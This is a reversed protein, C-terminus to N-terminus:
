TKRLHRWSWWATISVLMWSLFAAAFALPLNPSALYFVFAFAMLGLSGFAAGAADLAAAERGRRRGGSGLKRKRRIEDKEIMTASACLLAPFALFLGGVEPGFKSGIWGALVTVIGGLVFRALYDTWRGNKLSSASITVIM